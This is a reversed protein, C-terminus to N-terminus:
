KTAVLEDITKDLEAESVEKGLEEKKPAARLPKSPRVYTVPRERQALTNERVTKIILFRLVNRDAYVSEKISVAQEPSGKFKIWGFYATDFKTNKSNEKQVMTYALERRKPSEESICAGGEKEIMERLHSFHKAVDEESLTSILHFGLEYIKQETDEATHEEVNHLIETEGTAM